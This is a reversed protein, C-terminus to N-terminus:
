LPTINRNFWDSLRRIKKSMDENKAVFSEFNSLMVMFDHKLAELSRYYDNQLREQIIELCLPVPFRYMYSLGFNCECVM